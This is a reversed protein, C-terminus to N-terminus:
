PLKIDDQRFLNCEFVAFSNLYNNRLRGSKYSRTLQIRVFNSNTRRMQFTMSLHQGDLGHTTKRAKMRAGPMTGQMIEKANFM